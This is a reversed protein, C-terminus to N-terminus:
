SITLECFFYKTNVIPFVKTISNLLELTKVKATLLSYGEIPRLLFFLLKQIYTRVYTDIYTRVYTYICTHIYM